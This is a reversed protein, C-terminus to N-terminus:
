SQDSEPNSPEVIEAEPEKNGFAIRKLEEMSLNLKELEDATTGRGGPTTDKTEIKTPVFKNFFLAFSREKAHFERPYKEMEERLKTRNKGRSRWLREHFKLGDDIIRAARISMINYQQFQTETKNQNMIERAKRPTMPSKPNPGFSM